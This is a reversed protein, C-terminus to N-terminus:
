HPCGAEPFTTLMTLLTGTCRLMMAISMSRDVLRVLGDALFQPALGVPHEADRHPCCANGVLVAVRGGVPSVAEQGQDV